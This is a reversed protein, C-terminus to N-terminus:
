ISDLKIIYVDFLGSGFSRTYGSVAYGNDNTQIICRGWDSSIGGITRLWQQNGTSDLKVVYVDGNGSLATGTMAYGGDHTQILVKGHPTWMGTNSDPWIVNFDTSQTWQPLGSSDLKSIHARYDTPSNSSISAIAYGNDRTQIVTSAWATSRNNIQY